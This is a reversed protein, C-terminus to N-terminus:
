SASVTAQGLLTQDVTAAADACAEGICVFVPSTTKNRGLDAAIRGLTSTVLRSGPRSVDIAAIAPTSAPLGAALLQTTISGIDACAMYLCLTSAPDAAAAWDGTPGKLTRGTAFIVRRAKARTTLAFGFEAAAASATTVGAIVQVPVGHLELFAREEAARGFISPDGGKLRVVIAGTRAFRVMLRNIFDQSTSARHGRKGVEIVRASAPFLARVEDGVLADFLIVDASEIARLARLTLLDAAGPGAGVLLVRGQRDNHRGTHRDHPM